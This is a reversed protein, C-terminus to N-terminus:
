NPDRTAKLLLATSLFTSGSTRVVNSYSLIILDVLADKVSQANRNVNGAYIRGSHDVTPDTWTGDVRKGVYARKVYTVVNPLLRFRDEVTKDDSCVFFKADMRGMVLDFLNDDDAGHSGFDTKRIQVGYFAQLNHEIMFRQASAVIGGQFPLSTVKAKVDDLAIFPPILATYYFIDADASRLYTSLEDWSPMAMPSQWPAGINLHDEVMLFQLQDKQAVFTVLERNIVERHEHFLEAYSAGCWNNVPWVVLPNLGIKEAIVLGSVLANFRNGFGGDCYIYIQRMLFAGGLFPEHL